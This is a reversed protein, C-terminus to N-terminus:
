ARGATLRDKKFQAIQDLTYRGGSAKQLLKDEETLLGAGTEPQTTGAGGVVAATLTAVRLKAADVVARTVKGGSIALLAAEESEKQAPTLKFASVATSWTTDLEARLAVVKDNEIQAKLTVLEGADAKMSKLAVVAEEPTKQGSIGFVESRLAVLGKVAGLAADPTEAGVERLLSSRLTALGTVAVVRDADAADPKVGAAMSLAVVHSGTGELTRIRANATELQVKTENYLKEFDMTATREDTNLASMAAMLPKINKLGALNVLAFNVLKTPRCIGDDGFGWTFAPSFLNYKGGEVDSRGDDTWQIDDAILNGMADVAPVFSCSSAGQERTPPPFGPKPLSGHNWDAYLRGIGDDQFAQMVMAAAVSDFVFEGGNGEGYHDTVNVGAQLLQIAAPAKGDGGLSINARLIATGTRNKRSVVV